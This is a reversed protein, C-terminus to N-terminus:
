LTIYTFDTLSSLGTRICCHICEDRRLLVAFSDKEFMNQRKGPKTPLFGSLPVAVSMCRALKNGTLKRLIVTGKSPRRGMSGINAEDVVMIKNKPLESLTILGCGRGSCQVLGVSKFMVRQLKMPGVFLNGKLDSIQISASINRLTEQALLRSELPIKSGQELTTYDELPKLEDEQHENITDGDEILDFHTGSPGEITGPLIHLFKRTEPRDSIEVLTDVFFCLGQTAHAPFLKSEESISKTGPRRIWSGDDYGAFLCQATQYTTAAGLQRLLEAINRDCPEPSINSSIWVDYLIELGQHSPRITSSVNILSLQWMLIIIFEGFRSICKPSGEDIGVPKCHYCSCSQTLKLSAAEYEAWAKRVPHDLCPEIIDRLDKLEHLREIAFDVYGRGFSEVNYGIWNEYFIKTSSPGWGLLETFDKDNHAVADFIRAASGILAGFHRKAELLETGLSGFTRQILEDWPIRGTQLLYSRKMFTNVDRIYYSTSSLQVIPSTTEGFLVVIHVRQDEAVTKMLLNKKNDQLEIDLDMFVHAFAALWGCIAGGALTIAAIEGRSLRGIANLALAVDHPEGIKTGNSGRLTGSLLMYQNAISEFKTSVLSGSCVKVMNHWQQLSPRLDRPAGKIDTFETLIVAAADPEHSITSLAGCLAICSYGNETRELHRIPHHVGFGFWLVDNMSSYWKLDALATQIRKQGTTYVNLRSQLSHHLLFEGAISLKFNGSLAHAIAVTQVDLKAAALRAFVAVTASVTNNSLALWDVQGQQAFGSGRGISLDM